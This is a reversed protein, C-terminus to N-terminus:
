SGSPFNSLEPIESRLLTSIHCYRSFHHFLEIITLRTHREEKTLNYTGQLCTRNWRHLEWMNLVTCWVSYLHIMSQWLECLTTIAEETLSHVVIILSTLSAQSANHPYLTISWISLDFSHQLSKWRMSIRNIENCLPRKSSFLFCKLHLYASPPIRFHLVCSFVLSKLLITSDSSRWKGRTSNKCIWILSKVWWLSNRM